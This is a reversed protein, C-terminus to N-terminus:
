WCAAGANRSAKMCKSRPGCGTFVSSRIVRAPVGAAISGPPLSRTVVAGAAVISNEGITVGPLIIAGAGLYSGRKILVESVTGDNIFGTSEDHAVIIVRFAIVVEDEITILEPFQDDLFCDLGIQTHRGIKIGMRRYLFIRLGPSISNRALLNFLKQALLRFFTGGRRREYERRSLKLISM